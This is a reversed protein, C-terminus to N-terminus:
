ADSEDPEFYWRWVGATANMEEIVEGATVVVLKRGYVDEFGFSCLGLGTGSAHRIEHYGKNWFHLGNGCRMDFNSAHTWHNIRPQWGAQVLRNRAEDYTLNAIRPIPTHGASDPQPFFEAEPLGVLERTAKQEAALKWQSLVSVTYKSEDNDILKACSQCLWIANDISSRQQPILTHDFRPGGSAAATIHSAVGINIHRESDTHPGATLTGCAPNSCRYAVRKALTEKAVQPFENRAM